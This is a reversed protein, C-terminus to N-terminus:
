DKLRELIIDCYEKVIESGIFNRNLKKSALLVTGSGSFCDYILDGEKSFTVLMDEALQLPFIAPHGYALDDNSSFGKTNNYLWVNTRPSFEPIPKFKKRLVLNDNKDRDTKQGFNTTGEWRNKKDKILNVTSPKGKAFVYMMDFNQSYRTGSSKAPYTTTTRNYVMSDHLKLKCKDLFYIAQRYGNGSESGRKTEDGVIWVLIAGVKLVRTIEVAIKEFEFKGNGKYQRMTDFPPSTLVMDIFNNPM